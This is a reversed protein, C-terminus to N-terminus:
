AADEDLKFKRKPADKVRLTKVAQSINSFANAADERLRFDKRYDEITVGDLLNKAKGVFSALEGDGTINKADFLELFQRLNEVRSGYLKGPKGNAQTAGLRDQLDDVLQQFMERMAAQMMTRTEAWEDQVAREADDYLEQSIEKLGEAPDRQVFGYRFKFKSKVEDWSPYDADNHLPGLRDREEAIRQYYVEGLGDVEGVRDAARKRFIDVAREVCGVPLVYLTPDPHPLCLVKIDNRCKTDNSVIAKYEPCDLLRKSVRVANEPVDEGLDTEVRVKGGDGNNVKRITGWLSFGFSVLVCRKSIDPETEVPAEAGLNDDIM